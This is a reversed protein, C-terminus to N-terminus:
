DRDDHDNASHHKDNGGGKGNDHWVGPPRIVCASLLSVVILALIMKIKM